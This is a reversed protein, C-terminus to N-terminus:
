KNILNLLETSVANSSALNSDLSRTLYRQTSKADKHGVLDQMEDFSITRTNIGFSIYTHRLDHLRVDEINAEKRISDWLHRPSKIGVVKASEHTRELRNIISLTYDNLYIIKDNGLHDTKHQSLRVIRDKIDCFRMNAIESVRAGTFILLKIFAVSQHNRSNKEKEKLADFVRKLEASSLIRNRTVEENKDIRSCPNKEVLDSEIAFNFASRIYTLVSNAIFPARKSIERKLKVIDAKEIASIKKNGLKQKINKDYLQKIKDHSRKNNIDDLYDTFLDDFSIESQVRKAKRRELLPDYNPDINMMREFDSALQRVAEIKAGHSAIKMLRSKNNKFYYLYYSKDGNSLTKIKIRKNETDAIIQNNM